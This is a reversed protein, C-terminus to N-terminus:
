PALNGIFVQNPPYAVADEFPRLRATIAGIQQPERAPKSGYRVLDPVHELVFSASTVAARRTM